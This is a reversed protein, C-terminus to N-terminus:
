AGDGGGEAPRVTPVFAVRWNRDYPQSEVSLELQDGPELSIRGEAAKGNWVIDDHGTVDFPIVDMLTDGEGIARLSLSVEIWQAKSKEKLGITVGGRAILEDGHPIPRLDPKLSVPTEGRGQGGGIRKASPGLLQSLLREAESVRNTESPKPPQAERQFARLERWTRTLAARVVERESETELRSARPDWRDHEPPESKALTRDVADDALFVAAVAPQLFANKTHYWVVMGPTRVMAVSNIGKGPDDEDEGEVPNDIVTLGMTGLSKGEVSRFTKAKSRSSQEPSTKLAVEMAKWFPRIEPRIKPRPIVKRGDHDRLEIRFGDRLMRPWWWREIGACIDDIRLGCDIIAITTGIEGEAREMGLREALADAEEGVIPDYRAAGKEQEVVRGLFGRGSTAEGGYEHSVHYSCGMLVSIPLRDADTTRSYAVITAIRSSGAYVAKGFGFSGGSGEDGDALKRSGGIEMLLKRLKSDPRSPDGSLGTTGRDRMYLVRLPAAEDALANGEPLGLVGKRDALEDLHAAKWFKDRDDGHLEVLQLSIEPKSWSGDELRAAADVSNQVAERALLEAAEFGSGNFVTRYVEGGAGGNPDIPQYVWHMTANAGEGTREEPTNGLAAIDREQGAGLFGGPTWSALDINFFSKDHNGFDCSQLDVSAGHRM